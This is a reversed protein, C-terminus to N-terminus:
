QHLNSQGTSLKEDILSDGKEFKSALNKILDKRKERHLTIKNRAHDEYRKYKGSNQSLPARKNSQLELKTSM